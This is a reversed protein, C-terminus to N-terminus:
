IVVWEIRGVASADWIGISGSMERYIQLGKGFKFVNSGDKVVGTKFDIANAVSFYYDVNDEMAMFINEGSANEAADETKGFELIDYNFSELPLYSGPAKEKYINIDDKSPDYMITVDIGMPLKLRTFQFGFEFENEHVGTPNANKRVAFGPEMTQFTSAQAAILNSLYTIGGTGSCIYPKRNRFNRRNLVIPTFFDYFQNLSFSGGHPYYQGDRALQRWGPASKVIRKSNKDLTIELRGFENMMERDMETRELLREEAKSIFVGKQIMNNTGRVRLSTQYIHGHGFADRYQKGDFNDYTGTNSMGRGAAAIEQRIFKDSFEVKNAYQGVVSRLKMMQGYEDSGFERNDENGVQTSVRVFRKGPKLLNPDVWSDPNGDQLKVTYAFSRPGLVRSTGVIKILPANDSESKLVMPSHLWDYELAIEFEQLNKGPQAVSPNLHETIRYEVTSDGAVSWTYDNKGGPIVYYNGQAITM